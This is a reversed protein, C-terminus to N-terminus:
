ITAKHGSIFTALLDHFGVLPLNGAMVIGINKPHQQDGPIQYQKAWNELIQKQLFQEAINTTALGIFEPIFWSNELSAKKKAEKWAPEESNMWAGLLNLLDIRRQLNM